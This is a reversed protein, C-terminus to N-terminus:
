LLSVGKETCVKMMSAAQWRADALADHEAGNPPPNEVDQHMARFTRYCRDQRHSWPRPFGVARYAEALWVNDAAAGNGWIGVLGGGPVQVDAWEAFEHLVEHLPRVQVALASRAPDSQQLWWMVTGPDIHLGADVSSALSISRYFHGIEEGRYTMLVAGISVLAANPRLSMTELDVMIHM